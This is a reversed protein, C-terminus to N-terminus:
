RKGALLSGIPKKLLRVAFDFLIPVILASLYVVLPAAASNVVVSKYLPSATLVGVVAMHYLYITYSESGILRVAWAFAGMLKSLWTPMTDKSMISAFRSFALYVLAFLAATYVCLRARPPNSWWVDYWRFAYIIIASTICFILLIIQWARTRLKERHIYAAMALAYLLLYSGGFPIAAAFGWCNINTLNMLLVSFVGVLVLVCLTRPLSNENHKLARYLFPAILTLGFFFGVFYYLRTLPDTTGGFTVFLKAFTTLELVGYKILVCVALAVGYPLLLSKAKKAVYRGYSIQSREFGMAATVGAAMVFMGVSCPVFRYLAGGEGSIHDLLVLFIAATRIADLWLVRNNTGGLTM